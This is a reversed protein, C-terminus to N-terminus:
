HLLNFIEHLSFGIGLLVPFVVTLVAEKNDIECAHKIAFVWIYGRWILFIVGLLTVARLAPSSQEVNRLFAQIQTLQEPFSVGAYVFISVASAIMSSILTPLFGWGVFSLICRFDGSGGFIKSIYYFVGSHVIWLLFAGFLGSILSLGGGVISFVKAGQPFVSLARYFVYVPGAISAIGTALVIIAPGLVTYDHKQEQFFGNPDIVIQLM